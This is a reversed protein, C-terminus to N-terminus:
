YIGADNMLKTHTLEEECASQFGNKCQEALKVQQQRLIEETTQNSPSPSYDSQNNNGLSIFGIILFTFCALGFWFMSSSKKKFGCHPCAKAESSKQQKCEICEVLAM